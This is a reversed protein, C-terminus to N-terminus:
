QTYPLGDRQIGRSMNDKKGPIWAERGDPSLSVSFLYNPLGRGQVDSDETTTDEELEYRVVVDLSGPDLQYVEGHGDPSIFRTVWLATGDGSLSIGRVFPTVFKREVIERTTS